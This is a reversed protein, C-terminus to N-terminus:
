SENPEFTVKWVSAFPIDHYPVTTMESDVLSLVSEQTDVTPAANIYTARSGDMYEIVTKM